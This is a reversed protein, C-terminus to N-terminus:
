RLWEYGFIANFGTGDVGSGLVRYYKDTINELVLSLRHQDASGLATGTRLNLTAYGPTAAVGNVFFRSDTLNTPNYREQRDVLWTYVDFYRLRSSDRWRMGLVGQTPPIRSYPVNASTEQGYTYAFNGYLAWQRPLLIEGALETGNLYAENNGLFVNGVGDVRRSIYDDITMWWEYAQFNFREGNYKTGIEYTYSHEPQVDLSAVVPNQAANQLFTTSATLDDLTPSRFGEYVGGVLNWQEELKYTLGVSGIWEQYSRDFPIVSTTPGVTYTPAAHLDIMEFRVGAMVNLRDTVQTDWSAFSGLRDSYAGPPYQPVRVTPAAAPLTPNVSVRRADLSDHYWEGGYTLSGWGSMDKNFSLVGGFVEDTFEGVDVRTASRIERTGEKTLTYSATASFVDFFPNENYAEGQWRIYGFDRQQPDFYTPRPTNGPRNFVFPAFRDSRGLDQQEFHSLAFTLMQGENVLYNYKVDGAYQDYDTGPQRGHDGGVDLNHVNMGSAGAFLGSNNVWGEINGRGYYASDSTSFISRFSGGRYNSRTPDAGRTVINIVGGIADGGWLVSGAGRIVEIREVQGPDVTNFYQNPGSRLAQNNMRIGDVMVLVQQGTVGRIFPSAQGKGTQQVLVGVENQIAHFMDTAQKEQIVSRTIVSNFHSEQFVSKQGRLASNLGGPDTFSGGLLDEFGLSGMSPASADNESPNGAPSTPVSPEAAPPNVPPDVNVPPSPEAEPKVVVAPLKAPPNTTAEQSWAAPAHLGALLALTTWLQHRKSLPSPKRQMASIRNILNYNSHEFLV